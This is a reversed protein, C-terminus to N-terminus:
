CGRCISRLVRDLAADRPDRTGEAGTGGTLTSPTPQRHAAGGSGAGTVGGGQATGSTAPGQGVAASPATSPAPSTGANQAGATSTLTAGVLFACLALSRSM